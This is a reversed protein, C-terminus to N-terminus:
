KLKKKIEIDDIVRRALHKDSKNIGARERILDDKNEKCLRNEKSEKLLGAHKLLLNRENQSLKTTGTGSSVIAPATNFNPHGFQSQWKRNREAIAENSFNEDDETDDEDKDYKIVDGDGFDLEFEEEGDSYRNREDLEDEASKKRLKHKCNLYPDGKPDYDDSDEKSRKLIKDVLEDIDETNALDDLPLKEEALFQKLSYKANTMAINRLTKAQAIADSLINEDNRSQRM